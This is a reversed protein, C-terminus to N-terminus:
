SAIETQVKKSHSRLVINYSMDILKKIFDDSVTGDLKVSNWHVKNMYYGASISEHEERLSIGYGPELKLTIIDEGEKNKCISAYMKNKLLYREWEWEVKYDQETGKKSLMYKELWSYDM